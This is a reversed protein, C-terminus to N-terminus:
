IAICLPGSTPQRGTLCQLHGDACLQNPTALWVKGEIKCAPPVPIEFPFETDVSFKQEHRFANGDFDEGSVEVIGSYTTGSVTQNKIAFNISAM